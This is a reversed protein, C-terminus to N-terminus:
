GVGFDNAVLCWFVVPTCGVKMCAAGIVTLVGATVVLLYTKNMADVVAKLVGARVEGTLGSFLESTTGAVAGKVVERPVDPLFPLMGKVAENQFV